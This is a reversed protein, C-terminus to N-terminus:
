GDHDKGNKLETNELSLFLRAFIFANKGSVRLLYGEEPLLTVSNIGGPQHIQCNNELNSISELIRGTDPDDSVVLIGYGNGEQWIHIHKGGLKELSKKIPESSLACGTQELLWDFITSAPKNLPDACIRELLRTFIIQSNNPPDKTLQNIMDQLFLGLEHQLVLIQTIQEELALYRNEAINILQDNQLNGEQWNKLLIQIDALSFGLQQARKIFRLSKEANDDYVRYGADTRKAAPLLGLNEYYRIASPRM